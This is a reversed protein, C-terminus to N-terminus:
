PYVTDTMDKDIIIELANKWGIFGGLNNDDIYVDAYIKNGGNGYKAVNDPCHDNIRDFPVGHELLWNTANLLEKGTRCTWIIIYHGQAKLRKLTDVAYPQESKIVPYQSRVITGDFDVAIIM